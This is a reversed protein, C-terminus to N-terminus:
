AGFRGREMRLVLDAPLDQLSQEDSSLFVSTRGPRRAHFWAAFSALRARVDRPLGEFASEYIVLEPDILAARVCGFLRQVQAPREGPLSQLYGPVLREEVGLRGLLELVQGECAAPEIDRHYMVPLLINEWVKLNSIFGGGGWIVGLRSYLALAREESMGRLTEGFLVVEGREVPASELLLRLLRDRDLDSETVLKCAAGAGISFSAARFGEATVERFEIV